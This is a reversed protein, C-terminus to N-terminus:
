KINIEVKPKLADLLNAVDQPGNKDIVKLKNDVILTIPIGYTLSNDMNEFKYNPFMNQIYKKIEIRDAMPFGSGCPTIYYSHLGPINLAKVSSDMSPSGCLLILNADIHNNYVSDALALYTKPIITRSAGCWEAWFFLVSHHKEKILKQLQFSNVSLSATPRHGCGENCIFVFSFLISSFLFKKIM